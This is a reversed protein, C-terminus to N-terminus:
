KSEQRRKVSMIHYLHSAECGEGKSFIIVTAIDHDEFLYFAQRRWGRGGGWGIGAGSLLPM